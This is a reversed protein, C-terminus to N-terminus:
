EIRMGKGTAVARLAVTVATLCLTLGLVITVPAELPGTGLYLRRAAGILSTLPNYTAFPMLWGPATAASFFVGGLYLAPVLLLSVVFNAREFTGIYLGAALGGSAAVFSASAIFGWFLLPHALAFGGFLGAALFTMVGVLLGRLTGALSFALFRSTASLPYQSLDQLTNQYKMTVISFLPNQFASLLAGMLILGPVLFRLHATGSAVAGPRSGPLASFIALFLLNSLFPAGITQVALKLYRMVERTLLTSFAIWPSYAGDSIETYAHM